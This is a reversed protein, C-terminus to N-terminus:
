SSSGMALEAELTDRDPADLVRRTVAYSFGARAFAALTKERGGDRADGDGTRYPGFRRRRAFAAAAILDLNTGEGALAGLTQEIVEAPVGKAALAAGIAARPKGHRLLYRAKSMAYARDDLYGLRVLKVLVAELWAAAEDPDTGHAEISRGIRRMLLRRLNAVTSAHRGLHALAARELYARSVKRPVRRRSPKTSVAMVALHRLRAVRVLAM